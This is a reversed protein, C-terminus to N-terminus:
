LISETIRRNAAVVEPGKEFGQFGCGARGGSDGPEGFFRALLRLRLENGTGDRNSKLEM